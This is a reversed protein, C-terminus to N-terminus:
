AYKIRPDLWAYILDVLLNLLLFIGAMVFVLAQVTPYDRNNVSTILGMGMGPIQFIIEMVVIGGLLRGVWWGTFTVVPLLANKLAHRYIVLQEILGKSRATRVYDERIVELLQSRTLRTIPASIYFAQALAPWIVKQLNRSPDEWLSVYELPPLWQFYRVLVFLILVGTFFIPVSLGSISLSRCLYDPWRDQRVASVVGLPVAWLAALLLTLFALEMTRPFWEALMEGVPRSEIYSYGFNGQLAGKLWLAYQVAVPKDLGLEGRIKTVQAKAVSAQESGASYVLIEAIDGPVLRMLVFIILSAGILSPIFLLIRRVIYARM